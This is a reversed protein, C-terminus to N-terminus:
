HGEHSETWRDTSLEPHASSYTGVVWPWVCWALGGWFIQGRPIVALHYLSKSVAGFADTITVGSQYM